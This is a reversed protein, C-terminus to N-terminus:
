QKRKYSDIMSDKICNIIETSMFKAYQACIEHAVFVNKYEELYDHVRYVKGDNSRIIPELKENINSDFHSDKKCLQNKNNVWLSDFFNHDAGYLHITSYGLNIGVYIAQIIVSPVPPSSLGKKYFINRLSPFGRYEIANILIINIFPNTIESFSVFNKKNSPSVIYINMEWDIKKRFIEFLKFVKDYQHTKQYFMPDALCYHKPKIKFFVDDFAFFNMTIFDINKFEEDTTLHPFIEKLSPGNALVAVIDSHTKPIPNSFSRNYILNLLFYIFKITNKSFKLIRKILKILIKM